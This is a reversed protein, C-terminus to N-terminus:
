YLDYRYIVSASAATEDGTISYFIMKNGVIEMSCDSLSVSVINKSYSEVKQLNSFDNEMKYLILSDETEDFFHWYGAEDKCLTFFAQDSHVDAVKIKKGDRAQYLWIAYEAGQNGGNDSTVFIGDDEPAWGSIGEAEVINNLNASLWYEKAAIQRLVRRGVYETVSYYEPMTKRPLSKVDPTSGLDSVMTGDADLLYYYCTPGFLLSFAGDEATSVYYYNGYANMVQVEDGFDHFVKSNLKERNLALIKTEDSAALYYLSRSDQALVAAVEQQISRSIGTNKDIRYISYGDSGAKLLYLYSEDIGCFKTMGGGCLVAHRGTHKNQKLINGSENLYYIHEKDFATVQGCGMSNKDYYTDRKKGAQWWTRDHMIWDKQIGLSIKAKGSVASMKLNLQTELIKNYLRAYWDAYLSPVKPNESTVQVGFVGSGETGIKFANIDIISINYLYIDAALGLHLDADATLAFDLKWSASDDGSGFGNEVWEGDRVFECGGYFNQQYDFQMTLSVSIDGSIDMYFILAASLPSMGANIHIFNNMQNPDMATLTVVSIPTWQICAIPLLKDNLGSIKAKLQNGISSALEMSTDGDSWPFQTMDALELKNKTGQFSVNKACLTLESETEFQYGFEYSLNTFGACKDFIDMINWENKLDFSVNSLAAKGRLKLKPEKNFSEILDNIAKEPLTEEAVNRKESLDEDKLALTKDATSLSTKAAKIIKSFDLDYDLVFGKSKKTVSGEAEDGETGVGAKMNRVVGSNHNAFALTTVQSANDHYLMADANGNDVSPMSGYVDEVSDTFAVSVGEVTSIASISDETLEDSIDLNINDFAEDMSPTETVVVMSGDEKANISIIKGIYPAGFPTSESGELYFVSGNGLSAFGEGIENSIGIELQGFDNCYISQIANNVAVADEDLLLSVQSNIVVQNDKKDDNPMTASVGMANPEGHNGSSQMEQTMDHVEAKSQHWLVIGVLIGLVLIILLLVFVRATKKMAKKMM